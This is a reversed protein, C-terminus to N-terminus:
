PSESIPSQTNPIRYQHLTRNELLFTDCGACEPLPSGDRMTRRLRRYSEGQWIDTFSQYTLDGLTVNPASCCPVVHADATVLAHTWPAYCPQREYLGRAYHGNRSAALEVKTTGFPYAGVPSHMLGLAVSQEALAPAVRRNYDLLRRKNLLLEGSPDDAPMLLLSQAGLEHAFAPLENLTDYNERCVVTNIRIPLSVGRWEAARRLERVGDMTRKFAGPLGRIRDHVSRVPSDISVCVSNLGAKVLQRALDRTLLTGNTTLTVRLKLRRAHAILDPLDPCLTPEGGSFHVKRCGLAVLEDLTRTVLDTALRTSADQRWACMACALNCRWTLKIKVMLPRFPEAQKVAGAFAKAESQLQEVNYM